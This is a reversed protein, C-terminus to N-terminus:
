VSSQAATSTLAGLLPCELERTLVVRALPHVCLKPAVDPPIQGRKRGQKAGDSQRRSLTEKAMVRQGRRDEQSVFTNEQLPEM